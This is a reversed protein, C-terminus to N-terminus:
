LHPMHSARSRESWPDHPSECPGDLLRCLGDPAASATATEGNNGWPLSWLGGFLYQRWRRFCPAKANDRGCFSVDLNSPPGAFDALSWFPQVPRPRIALATASFRFPRQSWRVHKSKLYEEVKRALAGAAHV